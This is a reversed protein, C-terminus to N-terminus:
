GGLVHPTRSGRRAVDVVRVSPPRWFGPCAPCAADARERLGQVDFANAHAIATHGADRAALVLVPIGCFAPEYSLARRFETGAVSPKAVDVLIVCPRIGLTLLQLAARGHRAPLM